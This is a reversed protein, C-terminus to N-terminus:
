NGNCPALFQLMINRRSFEDPATELDSVFKEFAKFTENIGPIAALRSQLGTIGATSAYTPIEASPVSGNTFLSVNQRPPLPVLPPYEGSQFIRGSPYRQQHQHRASALTDEAVARRNNRQRNVRQQYQQFIECTSSNAPHDKNCNVCKPQGPDKPTKRSCKGPEHAETCKVCRYQQGCNTASHGFQQCNRCQTLRKKSRNFREWRVIVNDIAKHVTQLMAINVKGREFHVLYVPFNEKDILFTVKTAPVKEDTLMKLVEDTPTKDLGKLVYITPKQQPESFTFFHFKQEKLKDIFIKKDEASACIVQTKRSGMIKIMPKSTLQVNQIVNKIVTYSTDIFVPKAHKPSSTATQLNNTGPHQTLSSVNSNMSRSSVRSSSRSSRSRATNGTPPLVPQGLQNVSSGHPLSFKNNNNKKKSPKTTSPPSNKRKRSRSGM